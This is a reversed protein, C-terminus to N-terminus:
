KRIERKTELYFDKFDNYDDKDFVSILVCDDFFSWKKWCTEKMAAAEIKDLTARETEKFNICAVRDNFKAEDQGIYPIRM